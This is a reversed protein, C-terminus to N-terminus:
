MQAKPEQMLPRSDRCIAQSVSGRWLLARVLVLQTVPLHRCGASRVQLNRLLFLITGKLSSLLCPLAFECANFLAYGLDNWGDM